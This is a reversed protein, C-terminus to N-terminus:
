KRTFLCALEVHASYRFQDLVTLKGMSWGAGVLIAADRAFSTADCGVSFIRTLSSKALERMQAEAGARPPDIIAADMTKLERPQFPMRYLDRKEARVPKLGTTNKAAHTLAMIAAADSDAATVAASRALGFTFPGAGCFLDVISKSKILSTRAEEVLWHEAAETAQLFSGPPLKVQATGFTIMPPERQALTEGHLTLRTLNLANAAAILHNRSADLKGLGRLDVDLGNQTATFQADFPKFSAGLSEGLARAADFASALGPVLLPCADLDILEHSKARMFGAEVTSATKRVHLTVRRRGQGHADVYQMPPLALGARLLAAQARELKFAAQTAEDAHQLTCGGCRTYHKCVPKVRAAAPRLLTLPEGPAWDVEEGVLTHPIFIPGDPGDALGEGKAGLAKIILKM